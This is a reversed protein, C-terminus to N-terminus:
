PVTQSNSAATDALLTALERRLGDLSADAQGQTKHRGHPDLALLGAKLQELPMERLAQLDIAAPPTGLAGEIRALRARIATM